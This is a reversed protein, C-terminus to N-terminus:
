HAPDTLEQLLRAPDATRDDKYAERDPQEHRQAQLPDAPTGGTLQARLDSRCKGARRGRAASHQLLEDALARLQDGRPRFLRQRTDSGEGLAAGFAQSATPGQQADQNRHRRKQTQEASHVAHDLHETREVPSTANANALSGNSISNRPGQQACLQPQDDTNRPKQRV